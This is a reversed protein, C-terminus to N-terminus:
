LALKSITGQFTSFLSLYNVFVTLYHGITTSNSGIPQFGGVRSWVVGM